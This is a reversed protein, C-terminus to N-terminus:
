SHPVAATRDGRADLVGGSGPLARLQLNARATLQVQGDGYRNAIAALGVLQDSTIRGGILRLRVLLGDEAIWPRSIGPCRDARDRAASTAQTM